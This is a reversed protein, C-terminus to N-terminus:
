RRCVDSYYHENGKIKFSQKSKKNFKKTIKKSIIKNKEIGINYGSKLKISFIKNNTSPIFTGKYTKEKTKIEIKDGIKM